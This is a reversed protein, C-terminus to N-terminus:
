PASVALQYLFSAAAFCLGFSAAVIIMGAGAMTGLLWAAGAACTTAALFVGAPLWAATKRGRSSPASIKMLWAAGSLAAFAVWLYRRDGGRTVYARILAFGFPVAAFLIALVRLRTRWM